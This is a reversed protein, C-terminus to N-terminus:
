DEALIHYGMFVGHLIGGATKVSANRASGTMATEEGDFFTIDWREPDDSPSILITKEEIRIKVTEFEPEVEVDYGFENFEKIPSAIRSPFFNLEVEEILKEKRM